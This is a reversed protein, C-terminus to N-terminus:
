KRDPHKGWETRKKEDFDPNPEPMDAGVSKRWGALKKQLEAAKGPMIGSMNNQEGIDEKLNYLELRGDEFFELLKWDDQRM